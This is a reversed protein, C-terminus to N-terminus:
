LELMKQAVAVTMAVDNKLYELAKEVDEEYMEKFFKGDGNKQGVGFFKAVTDLKVYEKSGCSWVLMLDIFRSQPWKYDSLYTPVNQLDYKWSKRLLFPIDFGNSNWGIFKHSTNNDIGLEYLKNWFKQIIEKEDNGHFIGGATSKGESDFIEYGIAMVKGSFVSVAAKEIFETKKKDIYAAITEANKYNSPAEFEPFEIEEIPLAGTEIDFVVCNRLM